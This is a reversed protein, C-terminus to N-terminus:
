HVRTMRMGLVGYDVAMYGSPMTHVAEPYAKLVDQAMVGRYVADSWLYRFNYIPLGNAAVGVKEIGTKLRIDSIATEGSFGVDATVRSLLEGKRLEPKVYVKKMLGEMREVAM